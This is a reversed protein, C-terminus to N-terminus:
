VTVKYQELEALLQKLGEPSLTLKGGVLKVNRSSIEGTIPCTGNPTYKQLVIADEEVFFELADSTEVQLTKRTEKPIVIRGLNDVKRVIGTAKM